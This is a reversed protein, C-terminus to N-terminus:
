AHVLEKKELALLIIRRVFQDYNMGAAKAQRAAGTGPSIDPNPNIDLVEPNGSSDLRFDVRLYGSCNLQKFIKLAISEILRQLEIDITIPCIAKTAKFYRSRPEWKAKFTLISPLDPPLSYVIESIPLVSPNKSGWVTINFERGGIFEEVLARGGYSNSIRFVQKGLQSLNNIVSKENLGHSANERVPKVICPFSLAFQSLTEPTLEQYRPTAIGFSQLFEKAKVKDSTLTLIDETCGTYAMGLESLLGAVFAESDVNDDFGEFLNFVVDAPLGQLIEKVESLPPSLPVQTVTYNRKLLSHYVAKVSDVVGLVAKQEGLVDYRNLSPRNYIIAIKKQV